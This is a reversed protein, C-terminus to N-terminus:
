MIMSKPYWLSFRLDIDHIDITVPIVFPVSVYQRNGWKFERLTPLSNQYHM